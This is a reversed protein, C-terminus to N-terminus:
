IAEKTENSLLQAVMVDRQFLREELEKIRTDKVIEEEELFHIYDQLDNNDKKEKDLKVELSGYEHQDHHLFDKEQEDIIDAAINTVATNMSRLLPVIEKGVPSQRHTYRM